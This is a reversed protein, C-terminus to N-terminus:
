NNWEGTLQEICTSIDLKYNVMYGGPLEQHRFEAAKVGNRYLVPACSLNISELLSSAHRNLDSVSTANRWQTGSKRFTWRGSWSVSPDCFLITGGNDMPSDQVQTSENDLFNGGNYWSVWVSPAPIVYELRSHKIQINAHSAIDELMYAQEPSYRDYGFASDKRAAIYQYGWSTGYITDDSSRTYGALYDGSGYYGPNKLLGFNPVFTFDMYIKMPLMYRSPAKDYDWLHMDLSGSGNTYEDFGLVLKGTSSSYNAGLYGHAVATKLGIQFDGYSATNVGLSSLSFSRTRAASTNCLDACGNDLALTSLTGAQLSASNFVDVDFYDGESFGITNSYFSHELGYDGAPLNMTFSVGGDEPSFVLNQAVPADVYRGASRSYLLFDYDISTNWCAAIKETGYYDVIEQPYLFASWDLRVGSKRDYPEIMLDYEGGAALYQVPVVKRSANPASIRLCAQDKKPISLGVDKRGNQRALLKRDRSFGSRLFLKNGRLLYDAEAIDSPFSPLRTRVADVTINVTGSGDANSLELVVPNSASAQPFTFVEWGPTYQAPKYAVQVSESYMPDDPEITWGTDYPENRFNVYCSYEVNRKISFDAVTDEGLCFRYYVNEWRVDDSYLRAAIEFHTVLDRKAQPINYISKREPNQNGSMLVGQNNECCYMYVTEGSLFSQLDAPSLSDNLNDYAFVDASSAAAFGDQAFPAIRRASHRLTVSKIEVNFPSSNQMKLGVRSVLRVLEFATDSKRNFNRHCAMPFGGTGFQSYSGVDFTWAKIDAENPCESAIRARMDGVNALVYVSFDGESDPLEVEPSASTTYVSFAPCLAQRSYFFINLDVLKDHMGAVDSVFVSKVAAEGVTFHLKVRHAATEEVPNELVQGRQCSVACLVALVLLLIRNKM